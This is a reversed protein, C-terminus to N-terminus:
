VLELTAGHGANRYIKVPGPSVVSLFKKLAQVSETRYVSDGEKVTFRSFTEREKKTGAKSVAYAVAIESDTFLCGDSDTARELHIIKM